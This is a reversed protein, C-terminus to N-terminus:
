AVANYEEGSLNGHLQRQAVEAPLHNSEEKLAV